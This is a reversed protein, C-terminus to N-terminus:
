PRWHINSKVVRCNNGNGSIICNEESFKGTVVSAAGIVCGNQIKTGKLITVQSCIWVNNGIEISKSPNVYEDDENYIKHFDADMIHINWSLLCGEGFSIEKDCIITCNGTSNFDKGFTLVAGENISIRSGPAVHVNDYAIMEGSIDIITREFAMDCTALPEPSGLRLMGRRMDGMLTIKGSMDKFVVGTHIILPLKRLGKLGWFHFNYYLTKFYNVNKM